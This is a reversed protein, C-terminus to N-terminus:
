NTLASTQPVLPRPNSDWRGGLLRHLHMPKKQTLHSEILLEARLAPCKKNLVSGLKSSHPYLCFIFQIGSAYLQPCSDWWLCFAM